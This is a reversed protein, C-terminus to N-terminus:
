YAEVEDFGPIRARRVARDMYTILARYPPADKEALPVMLLVFLRRGEGEAFCLSQWLHNHLYRGDEDGDGDRDTNALAPDNYVEASFAGQPLRLFRRPGRQEDQCSELLDVYHTPAVSVPTGDEEDRFVMDATTIILSAYSVGCDLRCYWNATPDDPVPESQQCDLAEPLALKIRDAFNFLGLSGFVNEFAKEEDRRFPDLWVARVEGDVIERLEVFEPDDMQAHTLVFNFGIMCMDPGFNLFYRYSWFRLAEGEEEGDSVRTWLYGMEVPVLEMELPEVEGGDGGAVLDRVVAAFDFDDPLPKGDPSVFSDISIWLTGTDPEHGDPEKEYCGWYGEREEQPWVGWRRPIRLTVAGNGVSVTKLKHFDYGM